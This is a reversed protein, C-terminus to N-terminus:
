DCSGLVPSKDSGTQGQGHSGPVYPTIPREIPTPIYIFNNKLTLIDKLTKGLTYSKHIFQDFLAIRLEDNFLLKFNGQTIFSDNLSLLDHYKPPNWIDDLFIIDTMILLSLIEFGDQLYITQSITQDLNIVTFSDYPSLKDQLHPLLVNHTYSEDFLITDELIQFKPHSTFDDTLPVVDRFGTYTIAM